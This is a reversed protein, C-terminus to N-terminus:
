TRKDFAWACFYKKSKHKDFSFISTNPFRTKYRFVSWTDTYQICTNQNPIKVNSKLPSWDPCCQNIWNVYLTILNNQVVKLYFFYNHLALISCNQDTYINIFQSNRSFLLSLQDNSLAAFFALCATVKRQYKPLNYVEIILELLYNMLISFKVFLIM